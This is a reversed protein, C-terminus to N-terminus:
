RVHASAGVLSAMRAVARGHNGDTATVLCIPRQAAEARLQTLTPVFRLDGRAALMQAVAWSAGLVKFAPLDFRSSEDKVFVRGVDLEAALGPLEVLRTPSYGPLQSHFAGVEVPAPQCRWDCAAPNAYWNSM